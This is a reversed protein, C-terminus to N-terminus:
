GRPVVRRGRAARTDAARCQACRTSKRVRAKGCRTCLGAKELEERRLKSSLREDARCGECMRGGASAEAPCRVCQCRAHRSARGRSRIAAHAAACRPCYARPSPAACKVCLGRARRDAHRARLTTLSSPM